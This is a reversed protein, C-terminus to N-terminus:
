RIRIVYIQSTKGEIFAIRTGDPSWVPNLEIVDPIDIVQINGSGDAKVIHIEGAIDRIIQGDPDLIEATIRMYAIKKSDPSWKADPPGMSSESIDATHVGKEGISIANGQLDLLCFGCWVGCCALIKTGDPSLEPFSCLRGTTIRRKSTGDISQLWIDGSLTGDPELITARLQKLASAPKLKGQKIITFTKEEELMKRTKEQSIAVEYYGVTGDNLMMPASIARGEKSTHHAEVIPEIKGDITLKKISRREEKGKGEIRQSEFENFIFETSDVWIFGRTWKPLEAVKLREGTGDANVIYLINKYVYALKTGDPSWHPDGGTGIEIVEFKPTEYPKQSKATVFSFVVLLIALCSRAVMFDRTKM